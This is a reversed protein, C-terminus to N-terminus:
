DRLRLRKWREVPRIAGVVAGVGLGVGAGIAVSRLDGTRRDDAPDPTGLIGFTVAGALLGQLGQRLASTARRPVGRSVHLARIRERAVGVEGAAHPPTLYLSDATLRTVTGLLAHRSPAFPSRRVTDPLSVSVRAGVRVAEPFQAAAVSPALLVTAGALARLQRM